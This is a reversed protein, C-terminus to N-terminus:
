DKNKLLKDMEVEAIELSKYMRVLFNKKNCYKRELVKACFEPTGGFEDIKNKFSGINDKIIVKVEYDSM